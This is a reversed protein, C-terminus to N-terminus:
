QDGSILRGDITSNGESRLLMVQGHRSVLTDTSHSTINMLSGGVDLKFSVDVTASRKDAAINISNITFDSDLQLLGGMKEGIVAWSAFLDRYSKCAERKNLSEANRKGATSVMDRSHFDKDLLECMAEPSRQGIARDYSQYYARVQEENLERGSVVYWYGAGVALVFFVAITKFM